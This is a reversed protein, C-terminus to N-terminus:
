PYRLNLPIADSRLKVPKSQEFFKIDLGQRNVALRIRVKAFGLFNQVFFPLGVDVDVFGALFVESHTRLM